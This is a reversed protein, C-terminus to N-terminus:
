VELMKLADAVTQHYKDSLPTLPLRIAPTIRGMKALAHKVPIPNAELFMARHVTMLQSNIARATEFEGALAYSVMKAMAAPAINATVSINGVAGKEILDLATLDDGSFVRMKDGLAAILSAGRRVDGTADKIAVINPIDALRLVTAEQLDAVTRGPVNYLIQAIDVANAIAKYHQYLGEQTPKNYYPVVLLCADAGANKAHQTLSIAEQTNNAGTGAIVLIRNDVKRIVFDIVQHHEEVSLTSSEGTTGVAVVGSSGQAIHWEILHGLADFDITKNQQMPTVLAPISGQLRSSDLM